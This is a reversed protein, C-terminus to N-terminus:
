GAQILVVLPVLVWAFLGAGLLELPRTPRGVKWGLAAGLFCLAAVLYCIIEFIRM